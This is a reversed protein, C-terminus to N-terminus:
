FNDIKGLYAVKVFIIEFICLTVFVLYLIAVFDIKEAGMASIQILNGGAWQAVLVCFSLGIRSIEPM